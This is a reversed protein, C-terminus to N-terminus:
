STVTVPDAPVKFPADSDLYNEGEGDILSNLWGEVANRLTLLEVDEEHEVQVTFSITTQAGERYEPVGMKRLADNLGDECWRDNEVHERIAIRRAEKLGEIAQERTMDEIRVAVGRVQAVEGM